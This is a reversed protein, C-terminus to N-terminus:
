LPCERDFQTRQAPDKLHKVYHDLDAQYARCQDKVIDFGYWELLDVGAADPRSTVVLGAREALPYRTELTKLTPAVRSAVRHRVGSDGMQVGMIMWFRAQREVNTVGTIPEPLGFSVQHAGEGHAGGLGLVDVSEQQMAAYEDLLVAHAPPMKDWALLRRQRMTPFLERNVVVAGPAATESLIPLEILPCGTLRVVIPLDFLEDAGVMPRKSLMVWETPSLIAQLERSTRPDIVAGVWWLSASEFEENYHINIPLAIVFKSECKALLAMELELDLSTVFASAIPTKKALLSDRRLTAQACLVDAVSNYFSVRARAADAGGMREKWSEWTVPLYRERILTQANEPHGFVPRPQGFQASSVKPQRRSLYVLLDCWGPYVVSDDVICNWACETLAQLMFRKIRQHTTLDEYIDHLLGKIADNARQSMLDTLITKLPGILLTQLEAFRQPGPRLMAVDDGWRGLARPELAGVEHYLWTLLATAFLLRAAEADLKVNSSQRSAATPKTGSQHPFRDRFLSKIFSATLESPATNDSLPPCASLERQIADLADSLLSDSADLCGSGLVFTIWPFGRRLPDAVRGTPSETQTEFADGDDTTLPRGLQRNVREIAHCLWPGKTFYTPAKLTTKKLLYDNRDAFVASDQRKARFEFM